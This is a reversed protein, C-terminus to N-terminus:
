SELETHVDQESCENLHYSRTIVMM